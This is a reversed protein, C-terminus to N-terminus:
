YFPRSKIIGGLKNSIVFFTTKTSIGYQGLFSAEEFRHILFNSSSVSLKYSIDIFHNEFFTFKFTFNWVRWTYNIFFRTNTIFCINILSNFWLNNNHWFLTVQCNIDKYKYNHIYSEFKFKQFIAYFWPPIVAFSICRKKEKLWDKKKYM